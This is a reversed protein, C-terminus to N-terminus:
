DIQSMILDRVRREEAICATLEALAAEREAINHRLLDAGIITRSAPPCSLAFTASCARELRQSARWTNERARRLQGGFEESSDPETGPAAEIDM